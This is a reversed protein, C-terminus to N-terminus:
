LATYQIRIQLSYVTIHYIKDFKFLAAVIFLAYKYWASALELKLWNFKIFV